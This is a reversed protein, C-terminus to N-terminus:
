TLIAELAELVPISRRIYATAEPVNVPLVRADGHSLGNKVNVISDLASLADGGVESEFRTRYAPDFKSLVEKIKKSDPNRFTQSVLSRVYAELPSDNGKGARKAIVFEICDEFVGSAIVCLYGGLYASLRADVVHWGAADNVAADLSSCRGSIYPDTVSM